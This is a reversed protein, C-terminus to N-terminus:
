NLKDIFHILHVGYFMIPIFYEINDFIQKVINDDFNRQTPSKIESKNFKHLKIKLTFM